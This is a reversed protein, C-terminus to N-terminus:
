AYCEYQEYKQVGEASGAREGLALLTKTRINIYEVGSALWSRRSHSFFGKFGNEQNRHVPRGRSRSM